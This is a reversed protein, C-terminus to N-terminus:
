KDELASFKIIDAQIKSRMATKESAKLLRNVKNEEIEYTDLEEEGMITVTIKDEPATTKELTLKHIPCLGDEPLNDSARHFRCNPCMYTKLKIITKM